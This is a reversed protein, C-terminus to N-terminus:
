EHDTAGKPKFPSILLAFSDQDLDYRLEDIQYVETGDEADILPKHTALIDFQKYPMEVIWSDGDEWIFNVKVKDVKTIIEM